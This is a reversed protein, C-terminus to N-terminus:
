SQHCVVDVLLFLRELVFLTQIAFHWHLCGSLFNWVQCCVEVSQIGGLTYMYICFTSNITWFVSFRGIFPSFTNFHWGCSKCTSSFFIHWIVSFHGILPCFTNFPWGWLKCASYIHWFKVGAVVGSSVSQHYDLVGGWLFFSSVKSPLSVSWVSFRPFPGGICINFCISCLLLWANFSLSHFGSSSFFLQLSRM